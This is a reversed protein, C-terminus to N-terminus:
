TKWSWWSSFKMLNNFGCCFQNRAVEAWTSLHKLRHLITLLRDTANGGHMQCLRKLGLSYHWLISIPETCSCQENFLAFAWYFFCKSSPLTKTSSRRRSSYQFEKTLRPGKEGKCYRGTVMCHWVMCYLTMYHWVIGYLVMCHWVIGHLVLNTWPRKRRCRLGTKTSFEELCFGRTIGHREIIM